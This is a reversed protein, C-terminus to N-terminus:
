GPKEVVHVVVGLVVVDADCHGLMDSSACSAVAIDVLLLLLWM